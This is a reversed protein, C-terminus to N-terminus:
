LFPEELNEEIQDLYEDDEDEQDLDDEYELGEDEGEEYEEQYEEQEEDGMLEQDQDRNLLRQTRLADKEENFEEEKVPVLDDLLDDKAPFSSPRSSSKQPPSSSVFSLNSAREVDEDTQMLSELPPPSPISVPRAADHDQHPQQLTAPKPSLQSTPLAGPSSARLDPSSPTGTPSHLVPTTHSSTSGSRVARILRTPVLASLMSPSSARPKKADEKLQQQQRPEPTARGDADHEDANASSAREQHEDDSTWTADNRSLLAGAYGGREYSMRKSKTDVASNTPSSPQLMSSSSNSHTLSVVKKAVNSTSQLLSSSSSSTAYNRTPLPLEPLDIKPLDSKWFNWDNFEPAAREGPFIENVLDNM